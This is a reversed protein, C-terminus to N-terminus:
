LRDGGGNGSGRDMGRRWRKNRFDGGIAIDGMKEKAGQLETGSGGEGSRGRNVNQSEARCVQLVSIHASQHATSILCDM